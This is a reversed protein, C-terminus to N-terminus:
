ILNYKEAISKEIEFIENDKIEFGEKKCYYSLGTIDCIDSWDLKHKLFSYTFSIKEDEVKKEKLSDIYEDEDLPKDFYNNAQLHRGYDIGARFAKRLNEESYM